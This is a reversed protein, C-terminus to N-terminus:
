LRKIFHYGRRIFGAREYFAHAKENELYADLMVTVCGEKQALELVFDTLLRGVGASRHAAAVVVNDMELYKGSYIKAAVWIGSLGLCEDGAYVAVIRYGHPLMEDLVSSYYEPSLAANLQQILPYLPLMESKQTLLRFQLVNPM